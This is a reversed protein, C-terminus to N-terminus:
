ARKINMLGLILSSIIIIKLLYHGGIDIFNITMPTMRGILLHAIVAVPLVFFLWDYKPIDIGIKRFIKSLLPAILLVTLFSVVFDFIAYEGVRFQRLFSIADM